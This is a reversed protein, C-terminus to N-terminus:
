VKRERTHFPFTRRSERATLKKPYLKLSQSPIPTAQTAERKKKSKFELWIM